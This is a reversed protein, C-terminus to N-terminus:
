FDVNLTERTGGHVINVVVVVTFWGSPVVTLVTVVVDVLVACSDAATISTALLSPFSLPNRPVSWIETLWSAAM